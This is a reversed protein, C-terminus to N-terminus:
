ILPGFMYSCPLSEDNTTFYQCAASTFQDHTIVGKGARDLKDFAEDAVSKEVIRAVNLLVRYNEKEIVGNGDFDCLDFWRSFLQFASDHVLDIHSKVAQLFTAEDVKDDTAYPAFFNDWIKVCKARIQKAPLGDVKGLMNYRDAIDEYDAKCLHGDGKVNLRRNFSLLKKEWFQGIEPKM